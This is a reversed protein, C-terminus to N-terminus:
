VRMPKAWPKKLSVSFSK